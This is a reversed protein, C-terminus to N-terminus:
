KIITNLDKTVISGCKPCKLEVTRKNKDISVVLMEVKCTECQM